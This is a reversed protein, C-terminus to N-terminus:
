KRTLENFTKAVVSSDTTVVGGKPAVRITQAEVLRIAEEYEQRRQVEVKQGLSRRYHYWLRETPSLPESLKAKLKTLTQIEVSDLQEDQIIDYVTSSYRNVHVITDGLTYPVSTMEVMFRDLTDMNLASTELKLRERTDEQEVLEQLLSDLVHAEGGKVAHDELLTKRHYAFINEMFVVGVLEQDLLLSFFNKLTEEANSKAKELIDKRLASERLKELCQKKVENIYEPKDAKGNFVILEFGKVKKEPIFWPNIDYSLIEPKLGIFFVQKTAPHYKFNHPGFHEFNFGAKVWGRGIMVIQKKLEKKDPTFIARGKRNFIEKFNDSKNVSLHYGNDFLFALLKKERNPQLKELLYDVLYPYYEHGVVEQYNDHFHEEIHKNRFLGKMKPANRQMDAIAKSFSTDLAMLRDINGNVEEIHKEKLSTLVEGYYEATILQGIEKISSLAVPTNELTKKTSGFLNFPDLYSFVLVGVIVLVAQIVFGFADSLKNM